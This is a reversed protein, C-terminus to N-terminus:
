VKIPTPIFLPLKKTLTISTIPIIMPVTAKTIARVSDTGATMASHYPSSIYKKFCRNGAQLESHLHGRPHTTDLEASSRFSDARTRNHICPVNHASVLASFSAHTM